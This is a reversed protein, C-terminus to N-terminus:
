TVIIVPNVTMEDGEEGSDDSIKDEITETTKYKNDDEISEIEIEITSSGTIQGINTYKVKYKKRVIIQAIGVLIVFLNSCVIYFDREIYGFIVWFVGSLISFVTVQLSILKNKKEKTVRYILYLPYSLALLSTLICVKGVISPIPLLITFTRYSAWTGIFIIVINLFVDFYYEKIEYALYITSFLLSFCLGFFNCVKLPLYIILDGYIFWVLCNCYITAVLFTPADQYKLSGKLVKIFQTMPSAFVTGSAISAILSIIFKHKERM